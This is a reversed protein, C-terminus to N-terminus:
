CFLEIRRKNRLQQSGVIDSRADTQVYGVFCHGCSGVFPDWLLLEPMSRVQLWPRWAATVGSNWPSICVLFFFAAARGSSTMQLTNCVPPCFETPVRRCADTFMEFVKNNARVQRVACFWMSLRFFSRLNHAGAAVATVSGHSRLDLSQYLRLEAIVLYDALHLLAPPLIKDARAPVCKYLHVTSKSTLIAARRNAYDPALQRNVGEQAIVDDSHVFNSLQLRHQM